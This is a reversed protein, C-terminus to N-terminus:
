RTQERVTQDPGQCDPGTGQCGLRTEQCSPGTGQVCLFPAALVHCKWSTCSHKRAAQTRARPPIEGRPHVASASCLLGPIVPPQLRAGAAGAGAAGASREPRRQRSLRFMEGKPPLYCAATTATCAASLSCAELVSSVGAFFFSQPTSVSFHSSIFTGGLSAKSKNVGKFVQCAAM